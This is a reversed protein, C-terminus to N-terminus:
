EGKESLRAIIAQVKEDEDGGIEPLERVAVRVAREVLAVLADIFAGGDAKGRLVRIRDGKNFPSQINQSYNRLVANVEERLSTDTKM